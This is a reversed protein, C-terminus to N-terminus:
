ASHELLPKERQNIRRMKNETQYIDFVHESLRAIWRVHQEHYTQTTANSTTEPLADAMM